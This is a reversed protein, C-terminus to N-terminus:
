HRFLFVCGRKLSLGTTAIGYATYHGAPIIDPRNVNAQTLEGDEFVDQTAEDGDFDWLEITKGEIETKSDDVLQYDALEAIPVIEIDQDGKAGGNFVEVRKGDVVFVAKNDKTTTTYHNNFIKM